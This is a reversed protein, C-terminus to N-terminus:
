IHSHPIFTKGPHSFPRPSSGAQITDVTDKVDLVSIRPHQIEEFKDRFVVM